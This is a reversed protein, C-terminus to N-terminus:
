GGLASPISSISLRNSIALPALLGLLGVASLLRSLTVNAAAAVIPNYKIMAVLAASEAAPKAISTIDRKPM